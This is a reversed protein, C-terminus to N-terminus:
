TIHDRPQYTNLRITNERTPNLWCKYAFAQQLAPSSSINLCLNPFSINYASHSFYGGHFYFRLLIIYEHKKSYECKQNKFIHIDHQTYIYGRILQYHPKPNLHVEHPTTKLHVEHPTLMLHVEDPM